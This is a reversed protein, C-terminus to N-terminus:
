YIPKEWNLFKMFNDTLNLWKERLIVDYIAM